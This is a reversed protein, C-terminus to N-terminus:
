ALVVHVVEDPQGEHNFIYHPSILRIASFPAGSLQSVLSPLRILYDDIFTM